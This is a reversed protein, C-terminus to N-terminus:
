RAVTLAMASGSGILLIVGHGLVIQRDIVQEGIRHRVRDHLRIPDIRRLKRGHQAGQRGQDRTGGPSGAIAIPIPFARWGVAPVPWLCQTGRTAAAAL